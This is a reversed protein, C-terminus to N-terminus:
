AEKEEMLDASFVRRRADLRLSLAKVTERVPVYVLRQHNESVIINRKGTETEIEVSFSRVLTKPVQSPTKSKM